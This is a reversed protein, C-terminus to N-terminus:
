GMWELVYGGLLVLFVVIKNGNFFVCYYIYVYIVCVFVQVEVDCGLVVYDEVLQVYIICVIDQEIILGEDLDVMVYYVIVGILKVGCEYVQKYLNVGKFLFLFLYYINIIWGLMKVCFEDLLVQMYCVFCVLEVGLDEVVQM